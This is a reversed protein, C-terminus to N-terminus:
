KPGKKKTSYTITAHRSILYTNGCEVCDSEGDGEIGPGLDIEWADREVHGCYPCIPDDRHETDSM